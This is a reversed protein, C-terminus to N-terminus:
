VARLLAERLAQRSNVGLRQYVDKVMGAVTSPRLGLRDAITDNQLSCGLLLALERQRPSLGFGEVVQAMKLAAPVLQQVRVGVQNAEATGSHLLTARLQFRGWENELTIAATAAFGATEDSKGVLRAVRALLNVERELLVGRRFEDPCAVLHLMQRGAACAHHLKGAFSVILMGDSNEVFEHEGQSQDLAAAVQPLVHSLRRHDEKGFPCDYQSRLLILVGSRGQSSIVPCVLLRSVGAPSLLERYLESSRFEREYPAFDIVCTQQRQILEAFTPWTENTRSRNAFDVAYRGALVNTGPESAIASVVRGESDAWFFVAASYPVWGKLAAM